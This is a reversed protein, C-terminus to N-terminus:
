NKTQRVEQHYRRQNKMIVQTTWFKKKLGRPCAIKRTVAPRIAILLITISVTIIHTM